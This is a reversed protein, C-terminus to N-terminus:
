NNKIVQVNTIELKDFRDKLWRCILHRTLQELEHINEKKRLLTAILNVKIQDPTYHEALNQMANNQGPRVTPMTFAKSQLSEFKINSFVPRLRVKVEERVMNSVLWTINDVADLLDQEVGGNQQFFDIAPYYGLKNEQAYHSIQNALENGVVYPSASLHRQMSEETLRVSFNVAMSIFNLAM